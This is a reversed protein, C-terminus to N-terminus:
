WTMNENQREKPSFSATRQHQARQENAVYKASFKLKRSLIARRLQFDPCVYMDYILKLILAHRRTTHASHDQKSFPIAESQDNWQPCDYSVVGALDDPKKMQKKKRM